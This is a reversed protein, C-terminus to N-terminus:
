FDFRVGMDATVDEDYDRQISAGLRAGGLDYNVGIGFANDSEKSAWDGDNNAIYAEINTLGDALTYDGYLAITNGLDYDNSGDANPDFFEARDDGNDIYNLGIRAADNIAYRAGVFYQDNDEIGAGNQVAALSLELRENWVYDFSVGFEEEFGSYGNIVGDDADDEFYGSQDPDIYSARATLDGVAYEIAVGVQDGRDYGDTNFAYFDGLSNGGVSRDFAGLETAYILGAEDYATGVNGVSVTLGNATVYLLGPSETAGEEGQDWQLRIRGGFEVGQDTTTSADINMRLRSVIQTENTRTDDSEQYIVGTRGYGSITVDAAAYGATLVLATSAILAKKM